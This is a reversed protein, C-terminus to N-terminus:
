LISMIDHESNKSYDNALNIYFTTVKRYSYYRGSQSFSGVKDRVLIHNLNPKLCSDAVVEAKYFPEKYKKKFWSAAQWEFQSLIGVIDDRDFIKTFIPGAPANSRRGLFLAFKPHHIAYDISRILEDKGSIAVLFIADQLYNRYTLKVKGAKEAFKVLQFDSLTKGQQDIRVAFKLYNLNVIRPDDRPYGLAAAILGIVASKSPYHYSTRYNFTAENGYSQLPSTMKILLTKM